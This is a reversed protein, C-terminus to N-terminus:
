VRNLSKKNTITRTLFSGQFKRNLFPPAIKILKALLVITGPVSIVVLRTEQLRGVWGRTLYTNGPPATGYNGLGGWILKDPFYFIHWNYKVQWFHSIMYKVWSKAQWINCWKKRKFDRVQLDIFTRSALIRSNKLYWVYCYLWKFIVGLFIGWEITVDGQQPCAAVAAAMVAM